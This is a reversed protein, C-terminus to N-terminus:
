PRWRMSQGWRLLQVLGLVVLGIVIWKIFYWVLFMAAGTVMLGIFLDGGARGARRSM